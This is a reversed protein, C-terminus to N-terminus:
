PVLNSQWLDFQSTRFSLFSRCVKSMLLSRIHEDSLNLREFLKTLMLVGHLYEVEINSHLLAVAAWFLQPFLILKSVELSDILAELTLLM